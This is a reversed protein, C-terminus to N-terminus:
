FLVEQVPNKGIKLAITRRRPEQYTGPALKYELGPYRGPKIRERSILRGDLVMANLMDRFRGNVAMELRNAIQNSSLWSMEGHQLDIAFVTVVQAEREARSYNRRHRLTM